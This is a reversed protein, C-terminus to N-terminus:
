PYKISICHSLREKSYWISPNMYQLPSVRKICETYSISGIVILTFRLFCVVETKVTKSGGTSFDPSPLYLDYSFETNIVYLYTMYIDLM